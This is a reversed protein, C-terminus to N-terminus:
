ALRWNLRLGHPGRLFIGRMWDEAPPEAPAITAFTRVIAEISAELEMRAVLNGPCNHAGFGFRLHPGQGSRRFDIEYPNPFVAPDHNAANTSPQIVEDKHLVIGGIEVEETAVRTRINTGMSLRRLFEEVAAPILGPDERLQAYLDPRHALVYLSSGLIASPADHGAFLLAYGAGRLEDETWDGAETDQVLSSILDTGPQERRREALEGFYDSIHVQFALIDKPDTLRGNALDHSFEVFRMREDDPVGLMHCVVALPIVKAYDAIVDAGQGLAIFDALTRQVIAETAPRLENVRKFSLHKSLVRRRAVLQPGDMVTFNIPIPPKDSGGALPTPYSHERHLSIQLRPDSFAQKAQEYGVAIWGSSDGFPYDGYPFKARIIGGEEERLRALEQEHDVLVVVDQRAHLTFVPDAKSNSMQHETGRETRPPAPRDDIM